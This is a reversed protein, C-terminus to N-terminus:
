PNFEFAVGGVTDGAPGGWLTTGYLGGHPGMTLGVSPYAGDLGATFNYLVAETWGGNKDPTLSFITGPNLTGGGVTTGYLIGHPGFTLGNPNEGDDEIVGLFTHLLTEAWDSAATLKFAVGCNATGGVATTGYLNGSRDAILPAGPNVGDSGGDFSHLVTEAWSGDQQPALKYVTGANREGGYYTTGYLNGAADLLPAAFPGAGDPRGTFSYLVTEVWSGSGSPTLKYITGKGASGGGDTAGYVNGAADLIVGAYPTAGDTGGTFRHVVTETWQGQSTPTLKFVIGCGGGCNSFLGGSVTTGYLNGASDFVLTAHPTAGDEGPAGKFDYLVKEAWDGTGDPSLEFVVGYGYAGGSETAGYANGSSGLILGAYLDSGGQLHVGFSHLVNPTPAAWAAAGVCLFVRLLRLV